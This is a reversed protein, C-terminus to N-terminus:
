GDCVAMACLGGGGGRVGVWMRLILTSEGMM